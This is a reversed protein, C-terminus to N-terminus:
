AVEAKLANHDETTKTFGYLLMHFFFRNAAQKYVQIRM